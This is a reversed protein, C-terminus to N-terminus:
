RRADVDVGGVEHQREQAVLGLPRHDGGRHALLEGSDGPPVDVRDGIRGGPLGDELGHSPSQGAGGPATLFEELLM